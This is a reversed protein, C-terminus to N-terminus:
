FGQFLFDLANTVTDGHLVEVNTVHPGLRSVSLAAIDTTMVLYSQGEIDLVPKLRPLTEAAAEAVPMLPVVVRSALGELVNAQVDLVM